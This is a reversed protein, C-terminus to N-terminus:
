RLESINKLHVKINAPIQRVHKHFVATLLLTGAVDATNGTCCRPAPYRHSAGCVLHIPSLPRLWAMSNGNQQISEDATARNPVTTWLQCAAAFLSRFKQASPLSDTMRSHHSKLSKPSRYCFCGSASTKPPIQLRSPTATEFHNPSPKQFPCLQHYPTFSIWPFTRERVGPPDKRRNQISPFLRGPTTASTRKATYNPRCCRFLWQKPAPLGVTSNRSFM